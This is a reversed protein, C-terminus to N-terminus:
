IYSFHCITDKGIFIANVTKCMIGDLLSPKDGIQCQKVSITITWSVGPLGITNLYICSYM